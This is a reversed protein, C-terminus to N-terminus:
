FVVRPIGFVCSSRYHVNSILVLVTTGTVFTVYLLQYGRVLVLSLVDIDLGSFCILLVLVLLNFPTAREKQKVRTAQWFNCADTHAEAKLEVKHM